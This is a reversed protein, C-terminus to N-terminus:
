VRLITPLTLHTYSVPGLVAAHVGDMFDRRSAKPRRQGSAYAASASEEMRRVKADWHARVQEVVAGVLIEPRYLWFPGAVYDHPMVELTVVTFPLRGYRQAKREALARSRDTPARLALGVAVSDDGIAVLDVGHRMDLDDDWM